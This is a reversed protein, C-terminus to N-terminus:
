LIVPRSIKTQKVGDRKTHAKVTAKVKIQDQPKGLALSGIYLFVNGTPDHLINLYSDGYYGEFPACVRVTLDHFIDRKGVEGVWSSRKIDEQRIEERKQIQTKLREESSDLMKLLADHQKQTLGGWEFVTDQLSTFFKGFCVKRQPHYDGSQSSEFKGTGMLFDHAEEFRDMAEWRSRKGKITNEKIKRAVANEYAIEDQIM